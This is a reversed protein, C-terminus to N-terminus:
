HVRAAYATSRLVEDMVTALPTGSALRAATATLEGATPARGLMAAYTAAVDVKPQTVAKFAAGESYIAMVAGRTLHKGDLAKTLYDVTAAPGAGGTTNAFVRQVYARNSLKGYRATFASSTAFGDALVTLSTGKRKKVLWSNLGAPSPAQQLFAQYLRLVPDVNTRADSGRRISALYDGAPKGAALAKADGTVWAAPASGTFDTLQRRVFAPWTGFLRLGKPAVQVPLSADSAQPSAGAVHAQVRFALPVGDAQDAFTAQTAGAAVEIPAPAVAGAPAGAGLVASVTYGTPAAGITPATWTVKVDDDTVAATVATPVRAPLYPRCPQNRLSVSQTTVGPLSCPPLAAAVAPSQNAPLRPLVVRSPHGVSHGIENTSTGPLDQFAWFPQNGGPAEVNIRLRSGARIVHAFPFIEVRVKTFEGAPLPAADAAQHDQYPVLETSRSPDEKRHSARLWGSQIYVEQGDPRVETLTVELDTDAASSRLWLDASGQGAYAVQTPYAPTLFSLSNGEKLPDWAVAPHPAWQDETGLSSTQTRKSTPDYTYSPAGRAATDPVTSTAATAAGDPQLYLKENTISDIPWNAYRTTVPALPLGEKGAVNGNEWRIRVRPKSEYYAKAAEYTSFNGWTNLPLGFSSEYESSKFLDALEKPAGLYLLNSTHPVRKAVYLDMFVMSEFIESPAMPEVHVGNTFSAFVKTSKAFFPVLNASSGGTQEDQWQAALFTPVEIKNVFTETNLYDFEHEAFPTTRIRELLPKAQLRMVQNAACRTDGGNIRTRVWPRAAPKANNERESAWGYAFGNNLIGGPYLIGSYTDSYPSLPAIADLHPPHTAAVYLQSYGSYSIGAMGVNGNSWSQHALNEIVDYGDLGQLTEMFEFSGGSCGTGRMNVGVVVYGQYPYTAAERPADGPQSPDYGSYNVIVPWPGTSGDKPMTVNVSVDTGDRTTLYGFGAALPHAAAEAAYWSDAPHQAPTTVTLGGVTEGGERVQYGSGATVTRFLKAGAADATGSQVVTGAADLLDVTSGAPHGYTYM